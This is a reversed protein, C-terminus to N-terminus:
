HSNVNDDTRPGVCETDHNQHQKHARQSSTKRKRINEEGKARQAAANVQECIMLHGFCPLHYLTYVSEAFCVTFRTGASLTHADSKDLQKSIGERSCVVVRRKKIRRALISCEGCM